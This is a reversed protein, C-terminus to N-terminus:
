QEGKAFDEGACFFLFSCFMLILTLPANEFYFSIAGIAGLLGSACFLAIAIINKKFDM